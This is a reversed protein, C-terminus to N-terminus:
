CLMLRTKRGLAKPTHRLAHMSMEYREGPGHALVCEGAATPSGSSIGAKCADRRLQGSRKGLLGIRWAGRTAMGVGPGLRGGCHQGRRRRTGAGKWCCRCRQGCLCLCAGNVPGCFRLQPTSLRGTRTVGQAAWARWLACRQWTARSLRLRTLRATLRPHRPPHCYSCKLSDAAGLGSNSRQCYSPCGHLTRATMARTCNCCLSLSLACPM